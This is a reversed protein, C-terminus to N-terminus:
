RARRDAVVCARRCRRRRALVELDGSSRPPRGSPPKPGTVSPKTASSTPRPPSTAMLTHITPRFRRWAQRVSAARRCALPDAPRAGETRRWRQGDMPRTTTYQWPRDAAARPSGAPRRREAADADADDHPRLRKMGCPGNLSSRPWIADLSSSTAANARPSRPPRRPCRGARAEEGLEGARRM